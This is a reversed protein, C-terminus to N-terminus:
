PRINVWATCARDQSCHGLLRERPFPPFPPETWNHYYDSSAVVFGRAALGALVGSYRSAEVSFGNM